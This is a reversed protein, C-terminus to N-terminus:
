VKYEISKQELFKFDCSLNKYFKAMNSKSSKTVINYLKESKELIKAKNETM